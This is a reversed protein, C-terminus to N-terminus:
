RETLIYTSTLYSRTSHTLAHVGIHKHAISRSLPRWQMTVTSASAMTGRRVFFVASKEELQKLSEDRETSDNRGEAKRKGEM